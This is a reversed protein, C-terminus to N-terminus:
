RKPLIKPMNLDKRVYNNFEDFCYPIWTGFTFDVREGHRMILVKRNKSQTSALAGRSNDSNISLTDDAHPATAVTPEVMIESQQQQQQQRNTAHMTNNSNSNTIEIIPPKSQYFKTSSGNNNNHTSKVGATPIADLCPQLTKRLFKEVAQESEETISSGEIIDSRLGDVSILHFFAKHFSIISASVSM